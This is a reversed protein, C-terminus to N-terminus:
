NSSFDYLMVTYLLLTLSEQIIITYCGNLQSKKAIYCLKFKSNTVIKALGNAIPHHRCYTGFNVKKPANIITISM